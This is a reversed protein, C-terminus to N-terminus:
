MRPMALDCFYDYKRFCVGFECTDLPDECEFDDCTKPRCIGLEGDCVEYALCESTDVCEPPPVPNDYCVADECFQNEGCDIDDCTPSPFCNGGDCYYGSPCQMFSCSCHGFYFSEKGALSAECVYTFNRWENNEYACYDPYEGFPAIYINTFVVASFSSEKKRKSSRPVWKQRSTDAPTVVNM